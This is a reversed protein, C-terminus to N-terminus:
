GFKSSQVKFGSSFPIVRILIVPNCVSRRKPSRKSRRLGSVDTTAISAIAAAIPMAPVINLTTL